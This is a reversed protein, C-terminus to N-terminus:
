DVKEDLELIKEIILAASFAAYKKRSHPFGIYSVVPLTWELLALLYPRMDFEFITTRDAFNRLRCISLYAKEVMPDNGSYTLRPLESILNQTLLGEEFELLEKIEEDSEIKTMEFKLIPEIRAFDSVINSERTESFDIVYINEDNDLLINKMNMDGHVISKYWPIEENQRKPFENAYFHFPNIVKRGLMPCDIKEDDPSIGLEKEADECM